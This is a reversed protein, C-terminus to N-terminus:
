KLLLTFTGFFLIHLLFLHNSYVQPRNTVLSHYLFQLPLAAILWGLYNSIPATGSAFNWYDFMPAVPEICLDILVMMISGFVTAMFLRKPFLRAAASGTIFTLTVWNAGILIPVGLFKSGLNEGYSYTGFVLGTQVGVIEVVLGFVYVLVVTTVVRKNFTSLNILLLVFCLLLNLPTLQLFLDRNGYLIGLIGSCFVLWTVGISIWMVRNVPLFLKKIM